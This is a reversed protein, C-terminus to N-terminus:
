CRHKDNKCFIVYKVNGYHHCTIMEIFPIGFRDSLSHPFRNIFEYPTSYLMEKVSIHYNFQVTAQKWEALEYPTAPLKKRKLFASTRIRGTKM